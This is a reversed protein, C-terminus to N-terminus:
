IVQSKWLDKDLACNLLCDFMVAILWPQANKMETRTKKDPFQQDPTSFNFFGAIRRRAKPIVLYAADSDVHLEHKSKVEPKIHRILRQMEHNRRFLPDEQKDL